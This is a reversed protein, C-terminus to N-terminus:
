KSTRLQQNLQQIMAFKILKMGAIFLDKKKELRLKVPKSYSAM